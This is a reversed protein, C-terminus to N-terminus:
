FPYSHKVKTEIYRIIQGAIDIGTVSEIGELGPSANVELVLPGRDSRLIDVGAISLGMLKCCKLAIQEEEVTLKVSYGAGGRHLNSRFEGEQAVREMAAVVKDGVVFARIDRGKSESIFEQILVQERMASFANTLAIAQSKTEAILVGLGHTSNLLKIIYPPAGLSDILPGISESNSALLSMPVPVGSFSLIQLSTYKNRAKMLSEPTLTSFVGRNMFQRIVFSGHTTASAGIRPIIASVGKIKIGNYSIDIKGNKTILDCNMHDLVIMYHGRRRGAMVLSRTSYLQTSRSLIVIKM